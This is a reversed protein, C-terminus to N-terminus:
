IEYEMGVVRQPTWKDYEKIGKGGWGELEREGQDSQGCGRGVVPERGEIQPPAPRGLHLEL